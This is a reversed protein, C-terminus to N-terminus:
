CVKQRKDALLLHVTVGLIVAPFLIGVLLGAKLEDGFIGSVFGVATPGLSCGADGGLALLAFMATGGRSCRKAAVSLAGPWLVGVSFGCLGCGLLNIVPQVPLVILCYSVVCLGASFFMCTEISVRHSIKGHLVRAVGMLVAFMCPGALDGITKSVRLGREAFASAWQAVAQEAAGACVIAFFLLWFIRQSLLEKMSMAEGEEVIKAMPVRLFLLGNVLPVVAWLCSVWRWNEMGLLRFLITSGLIVIVCGWSYFSHLQTM